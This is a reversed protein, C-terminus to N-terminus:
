RSEAAETTILFLVDRYTVDGYTEARHLVVRYTVGQRKLTGTHKMGSLAPTNLVCRRQDNLGGLPEM